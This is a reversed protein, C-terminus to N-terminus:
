DVRKSPRQIPLLQMTDSTNVHRAVDDPSGTPAVPARRCKRACQVANVVVTAKALAHPLPQGGDDALRDEFVEGWGSEVTGISIRSTRLITSFSNDYAVGDFWLASM